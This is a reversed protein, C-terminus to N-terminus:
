KEQQFHPSLRRVKILYINFFFSSKSLSSRKTDISNTYLALIAKAAKHLSSNKMFKMM